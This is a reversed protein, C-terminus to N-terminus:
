THVQRQKSFMKKFLPINMQFHLKKANNNIRIVLAGGSCSSWCIHTSVYTRLSSCIWFFHGHNHCALGQFICPGLICGYVSSMCPEGLEEYDNSSSATKQSKPQSIQDCVCGVVIFYIYLWICLEYLGWWAWWFWQVFRSNKAVITAINSRLCLWCCHCIYVVMYVVWIPRVSSMLIM